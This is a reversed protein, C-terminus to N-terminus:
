AGAMTLPALLLTHRLSQDGYTHKMVDNVAGFAVAALWSGFRLGRINVIGSGLARGSAAAMFGRARPPVPNLRRSGLPYLFMFVVATPLTPALLGASMLPVSIAAVAVCYYLRWRPARKALADSLTGGILGALVASAIVAGFVAGMNTASLHHVRMLFAPMW